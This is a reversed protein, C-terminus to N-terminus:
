TSTPAESAQATTPTSIKRTVGREPAKTMAM